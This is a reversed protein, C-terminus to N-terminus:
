DSFSVDLRGVLWCLESQCRGIRLRFFIIGLRIKKYSNTNHKEIRVPGRGELTGLQAYNYEILM